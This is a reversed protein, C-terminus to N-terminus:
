AVKSRLSEWAQVQARHKAEEQQQKKIATETQQRLREIFGM